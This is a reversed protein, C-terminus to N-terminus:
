KIIKQLNSLKDKIEEVNEGKIISWGALVDAGCNICETINNFNLGGDVEIKLDYNNKESLERLVKITMLANRRFLQGGYGIPVGMVVVWKLNNKVITEWLYHYQNESEEIILGPIINKKTIYKIANQFGNQNLFSRKHVAISTAGANAYQEIHSNLFPEEVMLHISLCIDQYSSSLFELKDIASFSRPIFKGDGVDLHFHDIGSRVLMDTIKCFENSFPVEIMSASFKSDKKSNKKIFTSNDLHGEYAKLINQIYQKPWSYSSRHFYSKTSKDLMPSKLTHFLNKAHNEISVQINEKEINNLKNKLDKLKRAKLKTNTDFLGINKGEDKPLATVLTKLLDGAINVKHCGGLSQILVKENSGTTGHLVSSIFNTSSVENVWKESIGSNIENSDKQHHTTGVNAIFLKPRATISGKNQLCLTKNLLRCFYLVEEKSPIKASNDNDIYNLEGICYEQDILLIKEFNSILNVEYNVVKKYANKIDSPSSTKSKFLSSGDLVLHTINNSDLAEKLFTETRNNSDDNRSDVHDLGIGYFPLNLDDNRYSNMVCNITSEVLKRPGDKLGLYGKKFENQPGLANLSSQIVVPSSEKKSAALLANIDLSKYDDIDYINAGLIASKEARLTQWLYIESMITPLIRPFAFLDVEISRKDLTINIKLEPATHLIYNFASKRVTRNEHALMLNLDNILSSNSCNEFKHLCLNHLFFSKIKEKVFGVAESIEKKIIEDYQSRSYDTIESSQDFKKHFIKYSKILDKSYSRVAVIYQGTISCMFGLAELLNKYHNIENFTSLRHIIVSNKNKSAKLVLSTFDLVSHELGTEITNVKLLSDSLFFPKCYKIPTYCTIENSNRPSNGISTLEYNFKLDIKKNGQERQNSKASNLIKSDRSLIYVGTKSAIVIESKQLSTIFNIYIKQSNNKLIEFGICTTESKFYNTYLSSNTTLLVCTKPNIIKLKAEFNIRIEEIEKSLDRSDENIAFRYNLDFIEEIECLLGQYLFIEDPIDFIYNGSQLIINDAIEKLNNKLKFNIKNDINVEKYYQVWSFYNSSDLLEPEKYNTNNILYDVGHFFRSFHYYFSPIDIRYFYDSTEKEDRYGAVREIKRKLLEKEESVLCINIDINSSIEPRSTYHGELIVVTGKEINLIIEGNCLGNNERSYLNELKISSESKDKNFDDFRVRKIKKLFNTVKELNMHLEGECYFKIDKEELKKLDNARFTREKLYWDLRLFAVKFGQNKIISGINNALITKGSATPGDIGIISINNNKATNIANKAIFYELRSSM